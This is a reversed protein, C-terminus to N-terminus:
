YFITFLKEAVTYKLGISELIDSSVLESLYTNIHFYNDLADM